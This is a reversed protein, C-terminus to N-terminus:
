AKTAGCVVGVNGRLMPIIMSLYKLGYASGTLFSLSPDNLYAEPIAYAESVNGVSRSQVPMAGFATVGNLAARIDNVLYHATLYLYGIKINADTDFLTQNFNMQAELFATEIDEDLIYNDVDDAYVSWNSNTTPVIGTTGNVYCEYFLETSEYYVKAGSNYLKTNDYVPLYPFGRRFQAKFDDVTITTLDM